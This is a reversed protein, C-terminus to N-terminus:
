FGCLHFCFADPQIQLALTWTLDAESGAKVVCLVGQHRRGRSALGAKQFRQVLVGGGEPAM